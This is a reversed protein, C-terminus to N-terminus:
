DVPIADKMPDVLAQFTCLQKWQRAVRPMYLLQPRQMRDKQLGRRRGRGWRRWGWWRVSGWWRYATCHVDRQQQQMHLAHTCASTHLILKLERSIAWGAAVLVEEVGEEAGVGVVGVWGSGLAGEEKEREVGVEEV